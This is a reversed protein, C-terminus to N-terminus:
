ISRHLKYFKHDGPEMKKLNRLIEEFKRFGAVCGSIKQIIEKSEESKSV